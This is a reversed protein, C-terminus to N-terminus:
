APLASYLLVHAISSDSFLLEDIILKQIAKLFFALGSVDGM